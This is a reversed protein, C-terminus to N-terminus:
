AMRGPPGCPSPQTLAQRILGDGADGVEPEANHNGARKAGGVETREAEGPHRVADYEIERATECGIWQCNSVATRGVFPSSGSDSACGTPDVTQSSDWARPRQPTRPILETQCREMTRPMPMLKIATGSAARTILRQGQRSCAKTQDKTPTLRCRATTLANRSNTRGGGSLERQAGQPALPPASRGSVIATAAPLRNSPPKTPRRASPTERRLM